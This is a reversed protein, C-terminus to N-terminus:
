PDSPLPDPANVVDGVVAEVNREDPDLVFAAHYASGYSPRPGPKGNDTGGANLATRHFAEVMDESDTRFALHVPAIREAAGFHTAALREEQIWRVRRRALRLMDVGPAALDGGLLSEHSRCRFGSRQHPGHRVPARHLRQPGCPAAPHPGQSRHRRDGDMLWRPAAERATRRDTRATRGGARRIRRAHGDRAPRRARGTAKM